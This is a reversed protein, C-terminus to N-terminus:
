LAGGFPEDAPCQEDEILGHAHAIETAKAIAALLRPLHCASATFGFRSPLLGGSPAEYWARIDITFSGKYQDLRVKITQNRNKPWADIEIPLMFLDSM